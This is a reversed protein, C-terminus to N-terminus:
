YAPVAGTGSPTGLWWPQDAMVQDAPTAQPTPTPAGAAGPMSRRPPPLMPTQALSATAAAQAGTTDTVGGATSRSALPVSRAAYHAAARQAAAEAIQDLNPMAVQFAAPRFSVPGGGSSVTNLARAFDETFARPASYRLLDMADKVAARGAEYGYKEEALSQSAESTRALREETSLQRGETRAARRAAEDAYDNIEKQVRAQLPRVNQDLHQQYLANMQELSIQKARYRLILQNTYLRAQALAPGQATRQGPPRAPATPEPIIDEATPTPAKEPPEWIVKYGGGPQQQVIRGGVEIPKPGGEVAPDWVTKYTGDPQKQVLKGGVEIPKNAEAKVDPDNALDTELATISAEIKTAQAVADARAQKRVRRARGAALRDADTVANYKDAPPTEDPGPTSLRAVEARAADRQKGLDAIRARMRDARTIPGRGTSSPAPQEFESPPRDGQTDM